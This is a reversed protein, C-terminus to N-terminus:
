LSPANPQGEKHIFPAKDHFIKKRVELLGKGHLHLVAGEVRFSNDSCRFNDLRGGTLVSLYETTNVVMDQAEGWLRRRTNFKELCCSALRGSWWAMM